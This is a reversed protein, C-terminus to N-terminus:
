EMDLTDEVWRRPRDDSPGGKIDDESFSYQFVEIVEGERGGGDGGGGGM